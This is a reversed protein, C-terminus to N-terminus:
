EAEDFSTFYPRGAAFNPKNEVILDSRIIRFDVSMRIKNSNNWGNGHVLASPFVAMEREPKRLRVASTLDVGSVIEIEDYLLGIKHADSYRRVDASQRKRTVIQEDPIVSSGPVIFLTNDASINGLPIWVNYSWKFDPGFFSERHFGINEQVGQAAASPRVARLYLISQFSMPGGLIAEFAARQSTCIRRVLNMENLEDQLGRVRQRYEDVSLTPVEPASLAAEVLQQAQNILDLVEGNMAVFHIEQMADRAASM